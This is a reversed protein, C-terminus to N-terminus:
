FVSFLLYTGQQDLRWVGWLERRTVHKPSALYFAAKGSGKVSSVAVTKTMTATKKALKSAMGLMTPNSKQRPPPRRPPPPRRMDHNNNAVPRRQLPAAPIDGEEEENEDDYEGDSYEDGSNDYIDNEEDDDEDEYENNYGGCRIQLLKRSSSTWQCDDREQQRPRRRDLLAGKNLSKTTFGHPQNKKLLHDGFKGAFQLNSSAGVLAAGVLITVLFLSGVRASVCQQLSITTKMSARMM